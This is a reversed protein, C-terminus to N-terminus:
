TAVAAHVAPVAARPMPVKKSWRIAPLEVARYLIWAAVISTGIGCAMYLLGLPVSPHDGFLKKLVSITSWGVIPHMLYLSYSLKGLFQHLAGSLWGRAAVWRSSLVLVLAALVPAVHPLSPASGFVVALEVVVLAWWWRWSLDGFVCWCTLAGLAFMHWYRVFLGDVPLKIQGVALVLSLAVLAAVALIPRSRPQAPDHAATLVLVLVLYFQLEICLTWFVASIDGYGLIDQLYFLHAVIQAASFQGRGALEAFLLASLKAMGICLIITAWYPPDLRVSRRLAFMAVYRGSLPADRLSMSIVFGSLVFFVNVGTAGFSGILTHLWDPTFPRLLTETNLYLHYLVVLMAAIGRLGDVTLNRSPLSAPAASADPRTM